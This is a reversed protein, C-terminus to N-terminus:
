ATRRMKFHSILFAGRYHLHLLQSLRKRWQMIFKCFCNASKVGSSIKQASYPTLLNHGFNPNPRYCSEWEILLASKASVTALARNGWLKNVFLALFRGWLYKLVELFLWLILAFFNFALIKNCAGKCISM